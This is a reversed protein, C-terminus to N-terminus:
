PSVRWDTEDENSKPINCEACLVQVNSLDYALNPFKSKPRIHDVHLQAGDAPRAGCCECKGGARKLAQYRLKRWGKDARGFKVKPRDKRLSPDFNDVSKDNGCVLAIRVLKEIATIDTRWVIRQILDRRQEASMDALEIGGVNM